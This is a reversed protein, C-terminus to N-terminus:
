SAEEEKLELARIIIQHQDPLGETLRGISYPSAAKEEPTDLFTLQVLAVSLAYDARGPREKFTELCTRIDHPEM